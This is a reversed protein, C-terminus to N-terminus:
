DHCILIVTKGSEVYNQIVAILAENGEKDLGAYSEDLILYDPSFAMIGAIGVRRKEGGSLENVGRDWLIEPVKMNRLAAEAAKKADNKTYGMNLPGFMVDKIVSDAFLMKEPFQAVYGAKRRFYNMDPSHKKTAFGKKNKPIAVGDILIEGSSPMLLGNLLMALTSKGAGSAGKVLYLSGKEFNYDINKLVEHNGYSFSVDQLMIGVETNSYLVNSEIKEATDEPMVTNQDINGAHTINHLGYKEIKIKNIYESQKQFIRELAGTMGTLVSEDNTDDIVSINQDYKKESMGTTYQDPNKESMGTTYQDPNKESMGATYQDPNKESMGTIYQGLDEGTIEGTIQGKELFVVRDCEAGVKVNQTIIIVTQGFKRANEIIYDLIRKRTKEGQMSFVEDLILIKPRMVLIAALAERQKEGGSLEAFTSDAKNILKFRKLLGLSRKKIREPPLAKNEAGFIIDYGVIDFINNDEPNQLVIGCKRHLRPLNAPFSTDLGNVVVKDPADPYDLGAIYRAFSSKGSGNPGMLAVIEGTNIDLNISSGKIYKINLNKIRIINEM